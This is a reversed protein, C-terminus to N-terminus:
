FAGALLVATGNSVTVMDGSVTTPVADGNQSDLELEGQGGRVTISGANSAAGAHVLLVTLVTGDAVNLDEVETQFRLRGNDNRFQANGEPKPRMASPGALDARLRIQTNAGNNNNNNQGKGSGDDARVVNGSATILFAAALMLFAAALTACLKSIKMTM